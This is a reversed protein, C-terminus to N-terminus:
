NQRQTRGERKEIIKKVEDFQEKTIPLIKVCLASLLFFVGPSIGFFLRIATIASGPEASWPGEVYGFWGLAATALAIM